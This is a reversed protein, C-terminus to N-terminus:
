NYIKHAKQIVREVKKSLADATNSGVSIVDVYELFQNYCLEKAALIAEGKDISGIQMVICEKSIVDYGVAIFKPLKLAPLIQATNNASLSNTM